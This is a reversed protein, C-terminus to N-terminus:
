ELFSLAVDHSVSGCPNTPTRILRVFRNSRFNSAVDCSMSGRPGTSVWILHVFRSVGPLESYHWMVSAWTPRDAGMHSTRTSQGLHLFGYVLWTRDIEMGCLPRSSGHRHSSPPSLYRSEGLGVRKGDEKALPSIEILRRHKGFGADM